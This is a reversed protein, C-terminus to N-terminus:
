KGAEIQKAIEPRCVPLEGFVDARDALFKFVDEEYDTALVFEDGKTISFFWAGDPTEHYTIVFEGGSKAPVNAPGKFEAHDLVSEFARKRARERARLISRSDIRKYTM